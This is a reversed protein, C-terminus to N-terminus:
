LSVCVSLEPLAAIALDDPSPSLLTGRGMRHVKLDTPSGSLSPSLLQEGFRLSKCGASYGTEGGLLVSPEDILPTSDAALCYHSSVPSRGVVSPPWVDKL